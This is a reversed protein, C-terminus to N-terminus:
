PSIPLNLLFMSLASLQYVLPQYGQSARELGGEENLDELFSAPKERGVGNINIGYSGRSARGKYGMEGKAEGGDTV